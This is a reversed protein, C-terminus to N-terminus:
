RNRAERQAKWRAKAGESRINIHNHGSCTHTPLCEPNQTTSCCFMVEGLDKVDMGPKMPACICSWQSRLGCIRCAGRRPKLGGSRPPNRILKHGLMRPGRTNIGEGQELRLRPNYILQYALRRRFFDFHVESADPKFRRWLLWSKAESMGMLMQFERVWWRHTKWTDEFSM